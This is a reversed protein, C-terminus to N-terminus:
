VFSLLDMLNNMTNVQLRITLVGEALDAPAYPSARM